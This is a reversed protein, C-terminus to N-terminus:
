NFSFGIKANIKYYSNNFHWHNRIKIINNLYRANDNLLDDFNFM